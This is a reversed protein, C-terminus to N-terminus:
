VLMVKSIFPIRSTKRFLVDTEDLLTRRECISGSFFVVCPDSIGINKILKLFICNGLSLHFGLM